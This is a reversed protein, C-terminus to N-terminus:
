TSILKAYGDLVPLVKDAGESPLFFVSREVGAAQYQDIVEREPKAGFATISISKPDRGGQEACRRLEAIQPILHKPNAANPL